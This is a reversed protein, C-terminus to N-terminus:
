LLQVSSGERVCTRYAHTQSDDIILRFLDTDRRGYAHSIFAPLYNISLLQAVM